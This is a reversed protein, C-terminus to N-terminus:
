GKMHRMLFALASDYAAEILSEDGGYLGHEAGPITVLECEVNQNRLAEAMLVSQEYPVDTDNTGHVLLTPPYDPTVNRLPMFPTFRDAERQPDWGAVEHPWLGHQRCYQYFAGGDGNRERSDAIPPGSALRGAEVETMRTQHHRAHHSPQSYWDGILDGYGWFAVLVAPRPNVRFGATLTLYGGASAGMVAIRSPDVRLLKRGNTRLWTFADELDQIIAPLKTEPALRYDISVFAYGADLMRQRARQDIGTRNGNILAGGHIWVIVPLDPEDGARFLDLRIELNGMKKYTFTEM